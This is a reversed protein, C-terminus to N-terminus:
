GLFHDQYRKKIQEDSGMRVRAGCKPCHIDSVTGSAPIDFPAKCKACKIVTKAAEEPKREPPAPTMKEAVSESASNKAVAADDGSAKVDAPAQASAKPSPPEEAISRKPPLPKKVAANPHVPEEAVTQKAAVAPPNPHPPAISGAKKPESSHVCAAVAKRICERDDGGGLAKLKEYQEKTLVIKVQLKRSDELAKNLTELALALHAFKMDGSTMKDQIRQTLDAASLWEQGYKIKAAELNIENMRAEEIERVRAFTRGVRHIQWVGLTLPPITDQGQGNGGDIPLPVLGNRIM